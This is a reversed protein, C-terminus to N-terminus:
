SITIELVRRRKMRGSLRSLVDGARMVLGYKARLAAYARAEHAPDDVLVCTGDAWPGRVNGRVDCAAVKVRPNRGIRKVKFSEGLTFLVLKGDLEAIWVPTKVGGGDRKYSEVSVYQERGLTRADM